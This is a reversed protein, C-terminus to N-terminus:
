HAVERQWGREEPQLTRGMAQQGSSCVRLGREWDSLWLHQCSRLGSGPLVAQVPNGGCHLVCSSVPSRYGEAVCASFSFVLGACDVHKNEETPTETALFRWTDTMFHNILEGLHTHFRLRRQRAKWNSETITSVYTSFCSKCGFWATNWKTEHVNLLRSFATRAKTPFLLILSRTKHHDGSLLAALRLLTQIFLCLSGSAVVLIPQERRRNTGSLCYYLRVIM